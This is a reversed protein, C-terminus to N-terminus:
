SPMVQRRRRRRWESARAATVLGTTLKILKLLNLSSNELHMPFQALHRTRGGSSELPAPVRRPSFRRGRGHSRCDHEVGCRAGLRGDLAVVM